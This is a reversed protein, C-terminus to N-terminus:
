IILGDYRVGAVLRHALAVRRSLGGARVRMTEVGYDDGNEIGVYSLLIRLPPKGVMLRIM